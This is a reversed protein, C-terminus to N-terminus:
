LFFMALVSLPRHTASLFKENSKFTIEPWTLKTWMCSLYLSADYSFTLYNM